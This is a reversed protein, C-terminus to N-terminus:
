LSDQESIIGLRKLADDLIPEALDESVVYPNQGAKREENLKRAYPIVKASASLAAAVGSV